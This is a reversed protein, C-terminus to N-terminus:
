GRSELGSSPVLRPEPERPFAAAGQRSHSGAQATLAPWPLWTEPLPVGEDEPAESWTHGQRSTACRSLVSSGVEPLSHRGRPIYHLDGDLHAVGDRLEDLQVLDGPSDPRRGGWWRGGPRGKGRSYGVGGRGWAGGWSGSGDPSHSNWKYAFGRAATSFSTHSAHTRTQQPLGPPQHSPLLSLAGGVRRASGRSGAPPAQRM